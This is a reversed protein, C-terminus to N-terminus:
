AAEMELLEAKAAALKAKCSRIQQAVSFHRRREVPTYVGGMTAEIFGAKLRGSLVRVYRRLWDRRRARGWRRWKSPCPKSM